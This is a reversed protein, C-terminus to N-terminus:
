IRFLRSYRAEGDFLPKHLANESEDGDGSREAIQSRTLVRPKRSSDEFVSVAM